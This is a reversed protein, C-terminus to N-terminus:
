QGHTRHEFIFVTRHSHQATRSTTGCVSSDRDLHSYESEDHIAARVTQGIDTGWSLYETACTTDTDFLEVLMEDCKHPNEVVVVNIELLGRERPTRYRLAM